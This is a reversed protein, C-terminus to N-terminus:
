QSCRVVRQIKMSLAEVIAVPAEGELVGPHALLCTVCAGNPQAAFAADSASVVVLDELSCGLKPVKIKM